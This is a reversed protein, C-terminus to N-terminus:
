ILRGKKRKRSYGKSCDDCFLWDEGECKFHGCDEADIAKHVNPNYLCVYLKNGWYNKRVFCRNKCSDCTATFCNLNRIM